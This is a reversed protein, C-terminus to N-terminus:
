DCLQILAAELPKCLATANLLSTKQLHSRLSARIRLLYDPNDHLAKAIDIYARPTKAAFHQLQAQKLLSTGVRSQPVDGSLSVTPVGMWLAECTTTTGNYPFTDLALDIQSYADLHKVLSPTRDLFVIRLPDLTNGCIWQRIQQQLTPNAFGRAKLLLRSHPTEKLLQGWIAAIDPSIKFANNFCGFTFVQQNKDSNSKIAPAEAPPKYCHFGDPLELIRTEEGHSNDETSVLSADGIYYDINPTATSGPFGLWSVQKPAARAAFVPLRNFSFHGCLDFLVDISDSRVQQLLEKNSLSECNKWCDALHQYRLTLADPSATDSYLYLEFREKSLQQLLPELFFSVSHLRFDPSVFGLRIKGTGRKEIQSFAVEEVPYKKLAAVWDRRATALAEKKGSRYLPCLMRNSHAEFYNPRLQVARSYAQYAAEIQCSHLLASGYNNWAEPFDPQLQICERLRALAAQTRGTQDLLAGLNCLAGAMGPHMLIAAEFSRIAEDIRGQQALDSAKNAQELAAQHPTDL